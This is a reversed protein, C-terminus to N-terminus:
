DKKSGANKIDENLNEPVERFDIKIVEIKIESGDRLHNVTRLPTYGTKPSYSVEVWQPSNKSTDPFEQRLVYVQLGALEEVRNFGPHNKLYKHSRFADNQGTAPSFQKIQDSNAPKGVVGDPTGAFVPSSKADYAEQPSTTDKFSHSVIRWEGDAKVYRNRWSTFTVNGDPSVQSQIYTAIFPLAPEVDNDNTPTQTYAFSFITIGLTFVLICLGRFLNTM